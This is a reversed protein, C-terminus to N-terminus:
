FSFLLGRVNARIPDKIANIDLGGTVLVPSQPDITLPSRVSRVDVTAFVPADTSVPIPGPAAVPIPAEAAVSVPAVARVPIPAETTVPVAEPLAVPVAGEVRVRGAEVQLPEPNALHVSGSVPLPQNSQVPVPSRVADISVGNELRVPIAEALLRHLAQALILSSLTFAVPWSLVELVRLWTRSSGSDDM